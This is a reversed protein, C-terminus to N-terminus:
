VGHDSVHVEKTVTINEGNLREIPTGVNRSAVSSDDEFAIPGHGRERRGVWTKVGGNPADCLAIEDDMIASLRSTATKSKGGSKFGFSPTNSVKVEGTDGKLPESKGHSHSHSYTTIKSKMRRLLPTYTPICAIIVGVHIEIMSWMVPKQSETYVQLSAITQLRLIQVLTVFIGLGFLFGIGIKKRIDLQLKKLIPFPLVIILVDFGISAGAIGFYFALEDLCQGPLERNWTKAPPSCTIAFM